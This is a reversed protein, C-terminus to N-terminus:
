RPPRLEPTLTRDHPAQDALPDGAGPLTGSARRPMPTPQPATMAPVGQVGAVGPGGPACNPGPEVCRPGSPEPQSPWALTPEDPLDSCGADDCLAGDLEDDAEPTEGCDEGCAPDVADTWPAVVVGAATRCSGIDSAAWAPAAAFMAICALSRTM